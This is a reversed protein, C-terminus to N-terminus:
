PTIGPLTQEIIKDLSAIFINKSGVAYITNDDVFIHQILFSAGADFRANQYGGSQINVAAIRWSYDEPDELSTNRTISINWGNYIAQNSAPIVSTNMQSLEKTETSYINVYYQSNDFLQENDQMFLYKSDITWSAAVAYLDIDEVTNSTLDVLKVTVEPGFVRGYIIAKSRDPSVILQAERYGKYVAAIKQWSNTQSINTRSITTTLKDSFLYIIENNNIWQANYYDNTLELVKQGTNTYIVQRTRLSDKFTVLLRSGDPSFSILDVTTNTPISVIASTVGKTTVTLIQSKNPDIAVFLKSQPSYDYYILSNEEPTNITEEVIKTVTEVVPVPNDSIAEDLTTESPAAIDTPSTDTTTVNSSLSGPAPVEKVRSQWVIVWIAILLVILLLAILWLRKKDTTTLNEGLAM